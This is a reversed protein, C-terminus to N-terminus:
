KNKLAEIEMIKKELRDKAKKLEDLSHEKKEEVKGEEAVNFEMEEVKDKKKDEHEKDEVKKKDKKMKVEQMGAGYNMGKAEALVQEALSEFLNKSLHLRIRTSNKM